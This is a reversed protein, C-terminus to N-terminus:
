VQAQCYVKSHKLGHIQVCQSSYNIYTDLETKLTHQESFSTWLGFHEFAYRETLLQLPTTQTDSVQPVYPLAMIKLNYNPTVNHTSIIIHTILMYVHLPGM